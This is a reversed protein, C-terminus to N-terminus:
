LGKLSFQLSNLTQNHSRHLLCHIHQTNTNFHHQNQKKPHTEQLLIWSQRHCHLRAFVWCWVTDPFFKELFCTLHQGWLLLIATGELYNKFLNRKPSNNSEERKHKKCHGHTLKIMRVYHLQHSDDSLIWDPDDHLETCKSLYSM